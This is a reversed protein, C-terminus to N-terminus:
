IDQTFKATLDIWEKFLDKMDMLEPTQNVWKFRSLVRCFEHINSNDDFGRGSRMIGSLAGLIWSNYKLKESQLFLTRRASIMMSFCELVITSYPADFIFYAEYFTKLVDPDAVTDKWSTPFQVSSIDETSEDPNIGLFDFQLCNRLAKLTFDAFRDLKDAATIEKSIIKQLM